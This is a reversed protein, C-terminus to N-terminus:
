IYGKQLCSSFRIIRINYSFDFFVLGLIGHGLARLFQQSEIFVGSSNQLSMKHHLKESGVVHISSYGVIAHFCSGNSDGDSPFLRFFLNSEIEM